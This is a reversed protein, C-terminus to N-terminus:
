SYSFIIETHAPKLRTLSCELLQNGWSRLPDGAVSHGATFHGVSYRPANVRWWFRWDSESHAAGCLADGASSWGARFPRFTDITITFGLGAAFAIFNAKTPDFGGALRAVCAAQRQAVTQGGTVCPDPLGLAREWDDLLEVATGPFCERLLLDLSRGHLRMFNDALGAIFRGLVGAPNRPWAAGRPLLDFLAARYDDTTLATPDPQSAAAFAPSSAFPVVGILGGWAAWATLSGPNISAGSM